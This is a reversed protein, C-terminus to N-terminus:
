PSTIVKFWLWFWLWAFVNLDTKDVDTDCFIEMSVLRESITFLDSHKPTSEFLEGGFHYDMFFVVYHFRPLDLNTYLVSM